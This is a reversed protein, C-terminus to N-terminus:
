QIIRQIKCHIRPIHLEVGFFHISRYTQKCVLHYQVTIIQDVLINGGPIPTSSPTITVTPLITPTPTATETPTITPTITQTPTATPMNTPTNTPTETITSSITPTITLTETPTMTPNAQNSSSNRPMATTILVFDNANNDTDEGNGNTAESGGPILSAQTSTSSAKRIISQNTDPNIEFPATENDEAISFGVKDILTTGADRYLLITNNATIASSSASYVMDAETTALPSAPNTLLFYGHPKITGSLSSVLNTQSSSSATKQTVRWGELDITTTTPNYLEIFEDNETAGSIQIQSLVIHSATAAQIPTNTKTLM